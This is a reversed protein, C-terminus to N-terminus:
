GGNYSVPRPSPEQSLRQLFNLQVAPVPLSVGGELGAEDLVCGRGEVPLGDAPDLGLGALAALGAAGGPDHQGPLRELFVDPVVGVGLRFLAAGGALVAGGAPSHFM